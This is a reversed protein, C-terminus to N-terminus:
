FEELLTYTFKKLGSHESLLIFQSFQAPNNMVQCGASWKDIVKSINNQSARHINIGFLGKETVETRESKGDKDADRYVTLPIAQTWATYMGRHKGLIWGDIYQGPKLVAVGKKKGFNNQWYVGPNTSGRYAYFNNGDILFFRDDFENVADAKSRVGILHFNPWQYNLRTFENRLETPTYIKM